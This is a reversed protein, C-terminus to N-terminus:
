VENEGARYRVMRSDDLCGVRVTFVGDLVLLLSILADISTSSDHLSLMKSIQSQTKATKYALDAQKMKRKAMLAKIHNRIETKLQAKTQFDTFTVM